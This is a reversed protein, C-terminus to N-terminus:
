SDARVQARQLEGYKALVKGRVEEGLQLAIAGPLLLLKAVCVLFPSPPHSYPFAAAAPTASPPPPFMVHDTRM